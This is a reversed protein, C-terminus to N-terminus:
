RELLLEVDVNILRIIRKLIHAATKCFQCIIYEIYYILLFMLLQVDYLSSFSVSVLSQLWFSRYTVEEPHPPSCQVLLYRSIYIYIM